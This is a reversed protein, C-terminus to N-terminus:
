RRIIGRPPVRPPAPIDANPHTAERKKKAQEAERRKGVLDGEDVAIANGALQFRPAAGM